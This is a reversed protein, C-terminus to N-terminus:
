VVEKAPKRGGRRTEARHLRARVEYCREVFSMLHAYRDHANDAPDYAVVGTRTDCVVPRRLGRVRVVWGSAERGGLRVSGPEPPPLGLRRCTEALAAPDHIDTLVPLM